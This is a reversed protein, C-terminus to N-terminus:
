IPALRLMRPNDYKKIIICLIYYLNMMCINFTLGGFVAAVYLGAGKSIMFLFICAISSAFGSILTVTAPKPSFRYVLLYYISGLAAGSYYFLRIYTLEPSLKEIIMMSSFVAAFGGVCALLLPVYLKTQFQEQVAATMEDDKKEFLCFVLAVLSLAAMVWWYVSTERNYFCSFISVGAVLLHCLVIGYLRESNNMEYIYSLLSIDALIGLVVALTVLYAVHFRVVPLIAGVVILSLAVVSLVIKPIKLDRLKLFVFGTIISLILAIHQYTTAMSFEFSILGDEYIFYKTAVLFVYSYMVTWYIVNAWKTKRVSSITGAKQGTM